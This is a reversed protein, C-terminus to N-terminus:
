RVVPVSPQDLATRVASLFKPDPVAGLQDTKALIRGEADLLILGSTHNFDGGAIKRYRVGLLAAFKRVGSDDSRALTWRQTDLHRKIVVANLAAPTDRQPDFSVILIRLADRQTPTLAHQVGLGSDIMLPCTYTCSTYFMSVVQVHGRRDALQFNRGSQDTFTNTLQLVSAPSLPLPAAAIALTSLSMMLLVLLRKM